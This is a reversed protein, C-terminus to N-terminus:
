IRKRSRTEASRSAAVKPFAGPTTATQAAIANARQREGCKSLLTLCEALAYPHNGNHAQWARPNGAADNFLEADYEKSMMGSRNFKRIRQEPSVM